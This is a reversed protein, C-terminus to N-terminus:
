ETTQGDFEERSNEAAEKAAFEVQDHHHPPSYITYLKLDEESSTNSVNHKAGAPVIVGSGASIAHKTGDIEVEGTGSEIRFFQDNGHVEMGIAENPKLRMLVLQMYNSTYVVQRFNENGETLQELNQVYGNM